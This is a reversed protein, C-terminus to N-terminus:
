PRPTCQALWALDASAGNAIPVNQAHTVSYTVPQLTRSDVWKHVIAHGDAFSMGCAGAHQSGPLETFFGLGNTYSYITYLIGDDIADPHEDTFVWSSSPGPHALDGMKVAKWVTPFKINPVGAGVAADMAVSRARHSWGLKAESPCVFNAAPCAFVQFQNGLYSGLLAWTANILYDTNTNQMGTDWKMFGYVWSPSGNYFLSQDTNVALHDTNDGAYMMWALLLQKNNSMCRTAIAQSKARSLGPLLLSALIAIIAIVVLLEILTFAAGDRSRPERWSSFSRARACHFM